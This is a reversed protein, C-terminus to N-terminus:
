ILKLQCRYYHVISNQQISVRDILYIIEWDLFLYFNDTNKWLMWEFDFLTSKKEKISLQRVKSLANNYKKNIKKNILNNKSILM